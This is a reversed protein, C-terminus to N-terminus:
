ISTKGDIPQESAHFPVYEVMRIKGHGLFQYRIGRWDAHKALSCAIAAIPYLVQVFPVVLAMRCLRKWTRPPKTESSSNLLIRAMSNELQIWLIVLTALYVILTGASVGAALYQSNLVAGIALLSPLAVAALGALAHGLVLWWRPHYLRAWLMQRQIFKFGNKLDIEEQNVVTLAPCYKPSKGISHIADYITVDEVLSTQWTSHLGSQQIDAPRLAAAGGWPIECLWMLVVAGANWAQRVLSGWRGELPQYWRNGLPCGTNKDKMANALHWYWDEPLVMDAACFAFLDCQDSNNDVGQLMSSCILSRDPSHDRLFDVRYRHKSVNRLTEEVVPRASDQEADIVIQLLLNPYPSNVVSRIADKLFPDAGRLPMIVCIKPPQKELAQRIESTSSGRRLARTFVVFLVFQILLSIALASAIGFSLLLM